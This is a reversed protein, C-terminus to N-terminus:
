KKLVRHMAKDPGLMNFLNHLRYYRHKWQLVQQIITLVSCQIPTLALRQSRLSAKSIIIILLDITRICLEEAFYQM